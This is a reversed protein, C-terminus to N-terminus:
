DDGPFIQKLVSAFHCWRRRKMLCNKWAAPTLDRATAKLVNMKKSFAVLLSANAPVLRESKGNFFQGPTVALPDGVVSLASKQGVLVSGDAWFEFRGM